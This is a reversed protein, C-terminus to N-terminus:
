TEPIGALQFTATTASDRMAVAFLYTAGGFRKLMTDVPVAADSSSVTVGNAISQTNLVPALRTISANIETLADRIPVVDLCNTEDLSPEMRHCYYEIGAAGHVISMWVETKVQEPKLRDAGTYDSAEIIAVVPKQRRSWALLNDMGTAINELPDGNNVVYDNFSLVDGGKVYELYDDTHGTCSGRGVWETEAVARGLSLYVPRTPDNAVIRDYTDVVSSPTLCPGYNGSGTPLLEQANDPGDPQIWAKITPNNLYGTTQDCIVPMDAMSLAAMQDDTPGKWLGTFLNIGVSKFRPANTPTQLWVSLHFFGPDSSLGNRWQAFYAPGGHWPIYSDGERALVQKGSSCSCLFGLSSLAWILGWRHQKM